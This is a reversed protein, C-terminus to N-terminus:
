GGQVVLRRKGRALLLKGATILIATWALQHAMVPIVESPPLHGMYLRFPLDALGRFPLARIIGQAWDPFLPLPVLMGSFVLVLTPLLTRMGEGSVTWFMTAAALVSISTALLVACATAAVWALGSAPSAPPTLGFFLGALAFMPACRLLTPAIRGAATRAYWVWYLDLPRLLEYAVNGTRVMTMLERDMSWPLLRFMAQGLWVYVIVEQYTMPQEATTAAYFGGLIMIRIFGWFVQTVLGAMAAARYQLMMRFRASFYSWYAKM